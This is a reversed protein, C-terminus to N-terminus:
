IFECTILYISKPIGCILRVAANLGSQLQNNESLTFVAYIVDFM